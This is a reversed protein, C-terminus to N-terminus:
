RATFRAEQETDGDWRRPQSPHEASGESTVSRHLHQQCTWANHHRQENDRHNKRRQRKPARNPHIPHSKSLRPIPRTPINLRQLLNSPPPKSYRKGAKREPPNRFM